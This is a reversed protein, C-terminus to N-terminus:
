EREFEKRLDKDSLTIVTPRGHPCHYPQKCSQLDEIVREMEGMTLGRHFRISSHCAMTAIMHKRLKGMDIADNQQIFDLMDMLFEEEKIEDFWLPVERVIVQDMGFPEFEIGFYRTMENIAMLNTLVSTSVNLQIPVMRPQVKTCPKLLKEQLQEYHYREQAAHQDIIVLGEENECLIYSEKLQGIIRLHHFFENGKTKENKNEELKLEESSNEFFNNEEAKEIKQVAEYSSESEKICLPPESIKMEVEEYKKEKIGTPESIPKRIQKEKQEIESKIEKKPEVDYQLTPQEYVTSQIIRRPQVEPTRLSKEFAKHIAEHILEILDKQKTIRVEWKNPHVNVDVLQADVEIDMVVIPYRNPPLYDEYASIIANQLPVSRILRHNISIFIFHKNARSVKPMVAQGVIHFDDNKEEFPVTNEAIQRGYMQYIIEQINGNGSTQFIERDNHSLTFRINPYSLAMKNILDAIISFEYAAKRLYKFRAPTKIFLGSVDIKTGRPCSVEEECIKKGYAYRILSSEKGNNTELEVKAVAAISPLAEGRFGMTQINFLDTEDQLKSTAHRMFATRADEFDMGDGDDTIILRDIGGEFAEISINKAHADISNEVCEQVINVPREVVEGAAIMNALHEDLVHIKAM